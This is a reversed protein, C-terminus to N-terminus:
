VLLHISWPVLTKENLCDIILKSDGEILIKRRGNNIDRLALCEAVTITAQGAKKAGALRVNGNWDRIFFGTAAM